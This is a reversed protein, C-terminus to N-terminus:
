RIHERPLLPKCTILDRKFPNEPLEHRKGGRPANKWGERQGPGLSAIANAYGAMVLLALLLGTWGLIMFAADSHSFWFLSPLRLFGAAVSGYAATVRDLYLNVPTLGHSGILPLVQNIAVLFAIAYVLGLLRLIMFRTLWYGPRIINDEISEENGPSAGPAIPNHEEQYQEHQM